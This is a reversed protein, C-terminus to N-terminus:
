ERKIWRLSQVSSGRSLECDVQESQNCKFDANGSIQHLDTGGGIKEAVTDGPCTQRGVPVREDLVREHSRPWGGRRRKKWYAVSSSPGDGRHFGKDEM